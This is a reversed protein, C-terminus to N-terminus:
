RAIRGKDEKSWKYKQPAAQIAYEVESVDYGDEQFLKVADEDFEFDDEYVMNKPTMVKEKVFLSFFTWTPMGFPKFFGVVLILLAPIFALEYSDTLKWTLIGTGVGAALFAAQQFSFNGIDKSKTNRIDTTIPLEM